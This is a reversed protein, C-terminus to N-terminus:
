AVYESFGRGGVWVAVPDGPRVSTVEDGVKEVVGSVEHGISRPFGENGAKGTWLDLESTCVGCYAVRVLVEDPGISPIPEDLIEVEHPAALIARKMVRFDRREDTCGGQLAAPPERPM